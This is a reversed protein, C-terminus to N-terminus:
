VVRGDEVTITRGWGIQYKGDPAMQLERTPYTTVINGKERGRGSTREVFLHALEGDAGKIIKWSVYVMWLEGDRVDFVHSFHRAWYLGDAPEQWDVLVLNSGHLGTKAYSASRSTRLIRGDCLAAVEGSKFALTDLGLELLTPRRTVLKMMQVIQKAPLWATDVLLCSRIAGHERMVIVPGNELGSEYIKRVGDFDLVIAGMEKILEWRADEVQADRVILLEGNKRFVMEAHEGSEEFVVWSKGTIRAMADLQWNFQRLQPMIAKVFEKM